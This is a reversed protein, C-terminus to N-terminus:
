GLFINVLTYVRNRLAPRRCPSLKLWSWKSWLFNFEEDKNFLFTNCILTTWLLVYWLSMKESTKFQQTKNQKWLFQKAHDLMKFIACSIHVLCFLRWPSPNKEYVYKWNLIGNKPWFVIYCIPRNCYSNSLLM